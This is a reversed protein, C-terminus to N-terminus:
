LDLRDNLFVQADHVVLFWRDMKIEHKLIYQNEFVTLIKFYNSVPFDSNLDGQYWRDIIEKIEYKQRNLYFRVPYEDAKYEARCEVKVPIHDM